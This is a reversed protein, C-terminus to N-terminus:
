CKWCTCAEIYDDSLDQAAYCGMGSPYSESEVRYVYGTTRVPGKKAAAKKPM